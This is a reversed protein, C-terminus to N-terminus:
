KIYILILLVLTFIFGHAKKFLKRDSLYGLFLRFLLDAISFYSLLISNQAPTLGITSGYIPLYYLVIPLALSLCIVMIIFLLYVSNKLASFNLGKRDKVTTESLTSNIQKYIFEKRDEPINEKKLISLIRIKKHKSIPRILAMCVLVNLLVGALILRLLTVGYVELIFVIFFPYLMGGLPNGAVRFGNATALKM